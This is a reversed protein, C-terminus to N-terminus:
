HVTWTPTCGPVTRWYDFGQYKKYYDEAHELFVANVGERKRGIESAPSLVGAFEKKEVVGLDLLAENFYTSFWGTTIARERAASSDRSFFKMIREM